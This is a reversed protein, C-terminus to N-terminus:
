TEKRKRLKRGSHPLYLKFQWDSKKNMCGHPMPRDCCILGCKKCIYAGPRHKNLGYRALKVLDLLDYAFKEASDVPEEGASSWFITPPPTRGKADPEHTTLTAYGRHTFKM